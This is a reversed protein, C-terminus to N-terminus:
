IETATSVRSGARYPPKKNLTKGFARVSSLPESTSQRVGILGPRSPPSCVTQVAALSRSDITSHSRLLIKIFRNM